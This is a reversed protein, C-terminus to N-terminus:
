KGMEHLWTKATPTEEQDLAVGARFGLRGDEHLGSVYILGNEEARYLELTEGPLFEAKFDVQMRRILHLAEGCYGAAECIFNLYQFATMHGNVDCMPRRVLIKDALEMHEPLAVWHIPEGAPRDPTMWLRELEAPPVVKRSTFYVPLMKLTVRARELDGDWLHARRVIGVGHLERPPMNIRVEMGPQIPEFNEMVMQGMMWTAGLENIMRV